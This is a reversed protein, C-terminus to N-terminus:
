ERAKPHPAGLGTSRHCANGAVCRHQARGSTWITRTLPLMKLVTLWFNLGAGNSQRWM